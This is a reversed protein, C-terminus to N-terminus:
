LLRSQDGKKEHAMLVFQERNHRLAEVRANGLSREPDELIFDSDDADGGVKHCKLCAQAGVKAWVENAFFDDSASPRETYVKKEQGRAAAALIMSGALALVVTRGNLAM